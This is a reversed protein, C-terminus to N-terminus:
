RRLPAASAPHSAKPSGVDCAQRNQRTSGAAEIRLWLDKHDLNKRLADVAEPSPKKTHALAQSAGYRTELDNSTLMRIFEKNPSVGKRGLAM